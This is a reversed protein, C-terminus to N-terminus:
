FVAQNSGVLHIFVNLSHGASNAHFRASTPMQSQSSLLVLIAAMDASLVHGSIVANNICSKVKKNRYLWIIESSTIKPSYDTIGFDDTEGFIHPTGYNERSFNIIFEENRNM